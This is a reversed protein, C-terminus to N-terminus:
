GLRTKENVINSREKIDVRYPIIGRYDNKGYRKRYPKSQHRLQKYLEGGVSKNTLIFRYITEDSVSPKELAKLRRSIQDPSWKEKILPTIVCKMEVVLKIAKPKDLHRQQAKIQTQQYCYGCKGKNRQL